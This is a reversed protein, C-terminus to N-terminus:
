SRTWRCRGGSSSSFRSKAMGAFGEAEVAQRLSRIDIVGDGTMGRDNLIDKTPVLWDCVHFALIRRRGAERGRLNRCAASLSYSVPRAWRRPKMSRAPDQIAPDLPGLGRRHFGPISVPAVM